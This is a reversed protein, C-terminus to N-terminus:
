WLEVVPGVAGVEERDEDEDFGVARKNVRRDREVEEVDEIVGVSEDVVVADFRRIGGCRTLNGDTISGSTDLTCASTSTPPFGVEDDFASSPSSSILGM